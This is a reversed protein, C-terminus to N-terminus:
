EFHVRFMHTVNSEGRVALGTLALMDSNNEGAPLIINPYQFFKLPWRDRPWRILTSFNLGDLSGSLSAFSNLNIPSPEVLTSFFLARGVACGFFSSSELSSLRELEGDRRLRLVYNQEFPTDTAFYLAEPFPLLTVARTQQTGSFAQDVRAFDPSARLFKCEQDLDGTLVWLCDEYRDYFIGHIHRISRPPFTYAIDWSRGGDESGYIHVADREPNDFYEGWFIKGNSALALSLPRSGRPIHFTAEFHSAGPPLVAITKPLVAVLTSDPLQVLAHFGDRFLRSSLFHASTVRRWPAPHFAAVRLWAQNQPDWRLLTYGQGAFLSGSCWALVRLGPFRGLSELRVTAKM